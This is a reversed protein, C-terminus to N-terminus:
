EQSIFDNQFTEMRKFPRWNFPRAPMHVTVGEKLLTNIVNLAGKDRATTTPESAYLAAPDSRSEQRM